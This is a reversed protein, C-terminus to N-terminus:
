VRKKPGKMDDTVNETDIYERIEDFFEDRHKEKIIKLWM